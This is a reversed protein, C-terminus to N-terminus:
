SGEADLSLSLVMIRVVMAEHSKAGHTWVVQMAVCGVGVGVVMEAGDRGLKMNLLKIIM